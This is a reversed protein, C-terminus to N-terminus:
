TSNSNRNKAISTEIINLDSNLYKFILFSVILVAAIAMAYKFLHSKSSKTQTSIESELQNLSAKEEFEPAKFHKARDSLKAYSSYEDLQKFAEFEEPTLEENLWKKVLDEKM